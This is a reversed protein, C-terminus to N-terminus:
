FDKWNQLNPDGEALILTYREPPELLSEPKSGRQAELLQQMGQSM